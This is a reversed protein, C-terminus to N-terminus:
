TPADKVCPWGTAADRSAADLNRDILVDVKAEEDDGLSAMATYRQRVHDAVLPFLEDFNEVYREGPLVVFPVSQASLKDVVARQYKEAAFYGPPLIAQGGAFPRHAFFVVEPVVGVVLLRHEMTTCRAVYGYFPILAEAVPSPMVIPDHPAELTARTRGVHEAWNQPELMGSRQLHEGTRDVSVVAAAVLIGILAAAPRWLASRPSRWAVHALWAGLMVFPVIADPLRANMPPRAYTSNLLFAVAVIPLVRAPAGPDVARQWARLALLGALVPAAWYAYFLVAHMPEDGGLAPWEYESRGFERDRFELGKEVYTWIGDFAQVYLLYPLVMLTGLGVLMAARSCSGRGGRTDLALWAALVGAVGLHIGHDHRFLFATVIGAALAALRGTSPRTVYRQLLLFGIAYTLIKPYSYARPVIAVELVAAIVGLARSGTLERVAAATLVAALAFAASTLVAESFLTNGLARQAAASAVYMLPMGADLFDRTPWEGFLMQQANALHVFQDNSFGNSLATFRFLATLAFLVVLAAPFALARARPATM